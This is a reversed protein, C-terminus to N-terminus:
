TGAPTMTISGNATTTGALQVKTGTFAASTPVAIANSQYAGDGTKVTVDATTISAGTTYGLQYLSLTEGSVSYYTIANAPATAGPAAATVTKTVTVATPNHITDTTGATKLSITPTKNSTTLAVEGAPQYNGSTNATATVAVNSSAGQFGLATWKADGRLFKNRDASAPAPVQGKKGNASSTAGTMVPVDEIGLDAWTGDGKLFRNQDGAQPAPPAGFTGAQSATAGGMTAVDYAGPIDMQGIGPMNMSQQTFGQGPQFAGPQSSSAAPVAAYIQNSGMVDIYTPAQAGVTKGDSSVAGVSDYAPKMAGYTTSTAPPLDSVDGFEHWKNDVTSFVLEKNGVIVMDGNEATRNNEGVKYTTTASGDTLATTTVGRFHLGGSAIERAITDKIDYTTGSPLTIKSIEAM